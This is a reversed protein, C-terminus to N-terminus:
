TTTTGPLLESRGETLELRFRMRGDRDVTADLL